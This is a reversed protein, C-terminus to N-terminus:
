FGSDANVQDIIYPTTFYFASGKRSESKVWISGGLMEAYAKSIALGLGAGEYKRNLSENGQRLREFIMQQQGPSIGMGTDKM